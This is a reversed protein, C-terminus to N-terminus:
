FVYDLLRLALCLSSASHLALPSVSTLSLQAVPLALTEILEVCSLYVTLFNCKASSQLSVCSLWVHNCM